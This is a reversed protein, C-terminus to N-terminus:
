PEPNYGDLFNKVAYRGANNLHRQWANGESRSFRFGLQHLRETIQQPPKAPFFLQIRNAEKNEVVRVGKIVQDSAPRAAEKELYAIRERLRRINANNNTLEFQAFGKGGFRGDETLAAWHAETAGQLQLFAAKDDKRILRNVEKMFSQKKERRDLQDRLQQLTEPDDSSIARNDEIADAKQDYRDAQKDAEVSKWMATDMRDIDRRHRAESHHGIKIPEGQMANGLQDAKNYESDSEQRKKAAQQKAWAIRNAKRDHYNHKM